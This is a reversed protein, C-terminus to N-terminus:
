ITTLATCANLDIFTRTGMVTLSSVRSRFLLCCDSLFRDLIRLLKTMRRLRQVTWHKFKVWYLIWDTETHTRSHWWPGTVRLDSQLVCKLHKIQYRCYCYVSIIFEKHTHTCITWLSEGSVPQIHRHLEPLPASETSGASLPHLDTRRNRSSPLAENNGAACFEVFWESGWFSCCEPWCWLFEAM